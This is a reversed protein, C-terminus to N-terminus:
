TNIGLTYQLQMTFIRNPFFLSFPLVKIIDCIIQMEDRTLAESTTIVLMCYLWAKLCITTVTVWLRIPPLFLKDRHKPIHKRTCDQLIPTWIRHQNHVFSFIGFYKKFCKKFKIKKNLCLQCLEPICYLSENNYTKFLDSCYTKNAYM